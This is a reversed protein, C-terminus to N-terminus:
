QCHPNTLFEPMTKGTPEESSNQNLLKKRQELYQAYAARYETAKTSAQIASYIGGAIIAIGFLPFIRAIPFPIQSTIGCTVITWILGFIVGVVGGVLAGGETPLRRHGNKGTVMFEERQFEWQRDLDAIQQQQTLRSVQDRLAETTQNLQEISETFTANDGRTIQLQTQCHNCRIFNANTPVQLPAGCSNCMLSEVSTM